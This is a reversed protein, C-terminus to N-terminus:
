CGAATAAATEVAHHPRNERAEMKRTVDDSTMIPTISHRAKGCWQLETVVSMDKILQLDATSLLLSITNWSILSLSRGLNFSTRPASPQLDAYVPHGQGREFNEGPCM